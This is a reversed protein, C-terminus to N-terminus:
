LWQMKKLHYERVIDDEKYFFICKKLNHHKAFTLFLGYVPISYGNEDETPNQLTIQRLTEKFIHVPYEPTKSNRIIHSLEENDSEVRFHYHVFGRFVVTKFIIRIFEKHTTSGIHNGKKFIEETFETSSVEFNINRHIPPYYPLIVALKRNEEGLIGAIETDTECIKIGKLIAGELRANELSTYKLNANTFNANRLDAGSFNANYLNANEFNVKRLDAGAFDADTLNSSGLNAFQLDANCFECSNLDHGTLDVRQMYANCFSSYTLKSGKFNVNFFKSGSFDNNTAEVKSFDTNDFNSGEFHCCFFESRNLKANSFDSKEFYAYCMKTKRLKSNKFNCNSFKKDAGYDVNLVLGSFDKSNQSISLFEIKLDKPTPMPLNKM